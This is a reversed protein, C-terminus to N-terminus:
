LIPHLTPDFLNLAEEITLADAIDFGGNQTRRLGSLFAGSGLAEGWDRALARIYTGKTCSVKIKAEPLGREAFHSVNIRESPKTSATGDSNTAADSTASATNESKTDSNRGLGSPTLAPEYGFGHPAFELLELSNICIKQRNLIKDAEEDLNGGKRYLSRALEYARKGDIQKASFLPAVQEQEGIFGKLM